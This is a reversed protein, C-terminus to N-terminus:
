EDEQTYTAKFTSVKERSNETLTLQYVYVDDHLYDECIHAIDKETPPSTLLCSGYENELLWLDYTAM